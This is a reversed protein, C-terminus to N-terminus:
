RRGALITVHTTSDMSIHKGGVRLSVPDRSATIDKAAFWDLQAGNVMAIVSASPRRVYKLVNVLQMGGDRRAVDFHPVFITYSDLYRLYNHADQYILDYAGGWAEFVDSPSAFEKWYLNALLWLNKALTAFEPFEQDADSPQTMGWRYCDLKSVQDILPEEVLASPLLQCFSRRYRRNGALVRVPHVITYASLIARECKTRSRPIQVHFAKAKGIDTAVTEARGAAEVSASSIWSDKAPSSRTGCHERGPGNTVSM